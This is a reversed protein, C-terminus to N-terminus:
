FANSECAANDHSMVDRKEAHEAWAVVVYDVPPRLAAQRNCVRGTSIGADMEEM